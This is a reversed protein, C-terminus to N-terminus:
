YYDDVEDLEEPIPDNLIARATGLLSDVYETDDNFYKVKLAEFYGMTYLRENDTQNTDSINHRTWLMQRQQKIKPAKLHCWVAKPKCQFIWSDVQATDESPVYLLTIWADKYKYIVQDEIISCDVPTSSYVARNYNDPEPTPYETDESHVKKWGIHRALTLRPDPLDRAGQYEPGYSWYMFKAQPNPM